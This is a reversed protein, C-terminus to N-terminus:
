VIERLTLNSCTNSHLCENARIGFSVDLLLTLIISPWLHTFM